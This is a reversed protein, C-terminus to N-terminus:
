KWYKNQELLLNVALEKEPIPLFQHKESTRTVFASVGGDKATEKTGNKWRTDTIATGLDNKIRDVYIGWRILDYKRLAEFTLERAREDRVEQQFAAYDLGATLEPQLARARVLNICEYALATPGQNAENEAEALMLLVDSYRLLPFNEPTWNKNASYAPEWERRFKGCTRKIIESDKWTIKKSTKDYYYPCMTVDRRPDDASYLDWLLLSGACFGSCVKTPTSDLNGLTNGIRGMTMNGDDRSGYFEAEWISENYVADYQDGCMMKWLSEFDPNLQHKGSKKVENAWYAAKEYDAKGGNNPYGASWLYVRALIGMVTNKKVYSPSKDYASDDVMDVCDEMEKIIWKLAEAHSTAALSASNVDNISETRIPVEYWGQVLIFHYFARLFKAEGKYKIKLEDSLDSADIKELFINASNIGTYFDAWAEFIDAHAPTHGNGPVQTATDAAKRYWFSMDDCGSIYVSYRNGYTGAQTIASYVGALAMKCNKETTYFTEPNDFDYPTTTLFDACSCISLVSAVALSIRIITKKM